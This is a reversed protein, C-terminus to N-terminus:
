PAGERAHNCSRLCRRRARRAPPSASRRTTSGCCWCTATSATPRCGTAPGRARRWRRHRLQRRRQARDGPQHLGPPRDRQRGAPGASRVADADLVAGAAHHRQDARRLPRRAAPRQRRHPRLLRRRRRLRGAARRQPRDGRACLSRRRPHRVEAVRDLRRDAVRASRPAAADAGALDHRPRGARRRGSRVIIWSAPARDIRDILVIIPPARVIRRHSSEQSSTRTASRQAACRAPRRVAPPRLSPKPGRRPTQPGAPLESCRAPEAGAARPQRRGDHTRDAGARRHRAADARDAAAAAAPRATRRPRRSAAHAGARRREARHGAINKLEIGQHAYAMVAHWIMAPLSGGTMRNTSSYDDNGFWVGAVFNGTYGVFWADRYANTTGTKGAIRVGDLMARRGTGEEAAKNMMMNMDLAVQERCCRARSRATATSAGSWTAPRRHAGRPHRAAHGGQRTPSPRSLRRHPRARDGRRRRDAAVAHGAAAHAPGDGQREQRDHRPRGQRQGQRDRDLAQGRHHQDLAHLAETLTMSGAYGGSYNHPCWNGICVPGDVVISTPKMGNELATAYVYPKFSSGPQRLADTARNFQSSAYDRGGVMARVAATSIPSWWPPRARTITAATSSAAFERGRRRRRAALRFRAVTRVLFVRETM